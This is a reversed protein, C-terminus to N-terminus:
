AGRRLWPRVTARFRAYARRSKAGNVMAAPVGAPHEKYWELFNEMVRMQQTWGDTSHARVTARPEDFYNVLPEGIYVFDTFALARLWAAYDEGVILGADEPFGGIKQMLSRRVLVSSCHVPNRELAERWGIVSDRM